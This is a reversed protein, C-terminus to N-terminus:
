PSFHGGHHPLFIKPQVQVANEYPSKIKALNKHSRRITPHYFCLSFIKNNNEKLFLKAVAKNFQVESASLKEDEDTLLPLLADLMRYIMMAQLFSAIEPSVFEM